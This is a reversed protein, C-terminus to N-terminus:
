RHFGGGKYAGGGEALKGGEDGNSRWWIGHSVPPTNLHPTRRPPTRGRRAEEGNGWGPDLRVSHRVKNRTPVGPPPRRRGEDEETGTTRTNTSCEVIHPFLFLPFKVSSSISKSVLMDSATLLTIL